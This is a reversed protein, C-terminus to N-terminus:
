DLISYTLYKLCNKLLKQTIKLHSMFDNDQSNHLYVLVSLLLVIFLRLGNKVNIKKVYDQKM